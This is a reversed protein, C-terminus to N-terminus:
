VLDALFREAIKRHDTLKPGLKEASRAMMSMRPNALFIAHHDAIFTWFLADWIDCWPGRPFDSMKLIYHSGSLYPKTTFSGGDAYQSMGYVNPVMVWDYSDIFMEMFWLYVDDPHIRCLLMFSGLIMLREIHHCYGTALVKRIVHDVPEIGTTGHYFARPMRRRFGWFNRTRVSVGDREYMARMFERWGIIQRIFGELANLPVPHHAAFDLTRQLVQAPTLLGINLSPTLVSHFLVPHRASIADEYTGFGTLRMKLFDDLWASAAEHTAPYLLAARSGHSTPFEADLERTIAHTDHDVTPLTPVAFGRPLRMRNEEDFSWRGGLPSGDETLLIRMSRRQQEYFRAMFPKRGSHFHETLFADPTLFQPTEHIQCAIDRQEAFRQLRRSLIDDVPDIVHLRTTSPPLSAHLLAITSGGGAPCALVKVLTGSKMLKDAFARMSARHLLLKQRHMTSPWYEDPGFLLPDEILLVPLRLRM